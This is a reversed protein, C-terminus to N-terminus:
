TAFPAAPQPGPASSLSRARSLGTQAEPGAGVEPTCPCMGVRRWPDLAMGPTLWARPTGLLAAPDVACGGLQHGAEGPDPIPCVQGQAWGRGKHTRSPVPPAVLGAPKMAMAHCAANQVCLHRFPDRVWHGM